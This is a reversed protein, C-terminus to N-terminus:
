ASHIARLPETGLSNAHILPSFRTAAGICRNYSGTQRSAVGYSDNM